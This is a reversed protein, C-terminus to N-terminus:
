GGGSPVFYYFNGLGGQPSGTWVGADAMADSVVVACVMAAMVSPPCLALGTLDPPNGISNARLDNLAFPDPWLNDWERHGAFHREHASALLVFSLALAGSLLRPVTVSGRTAAAVKSGLM